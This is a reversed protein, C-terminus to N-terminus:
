ITYYATNCVGELKAIVKKIDAATKSAANKMGELLSRCAKRSDEFAKDRNGEEEYKDDLLIKLQGKLKNGEM